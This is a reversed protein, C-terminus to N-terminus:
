TDFPMKWPNYHEQELLRVKNELIDIRKKYNRLIDTLKNVTKTFDKFNVKESMSIKLNRQELPIIINM